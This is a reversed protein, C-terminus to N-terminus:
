GFQEKSMSKLKKLSRHLVSRANVESLGMIKGIEAFSLKQIIRLDVIVKEKPKLTAFVDNVSMESVVMTEPCNSENYLGSLNEDQMQSPKIQRKDRRFKDIYHNRAIRFLWGSFSGSFDFQSIKRYAKAFTEQAVDEADSKSLGLDFLFFMVLGYHDKTLQNFAQQNGKRAEEIHLNCADDNSKKM